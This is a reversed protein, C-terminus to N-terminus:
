LGFWYENNENTSIAKTIRDIAKDMGKMLFPDHLQDYEPRFFKKIKEFELLNRECLLTAIVRDVKLIEQIKKIQNKDKHTDLINWRKEM